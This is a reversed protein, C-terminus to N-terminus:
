EEGKETPLEKMKEVLGTVTGNGGLAHYQTYMEMINEMAYIPCYGKEIYHNYSAILRDRLIAVVGEEIAEQKRGSAQIRALLRRYGYGLASIMCAFFVEIWYEMVFEM